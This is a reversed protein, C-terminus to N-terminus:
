ILEQLAWGREFWASDDDMYTVCDTCEQYYRYMSNMDESIETGNSKNICCTGVWVHQL